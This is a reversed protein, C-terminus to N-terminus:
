PPSAELRGLDEIRRKAQDVLSTIGAEEAAALAEHYRKRAREIARQDAGYKLFNDATELLHWIEEPTVRPNQWAIAKSRTGRLALLERPAAGAVGPDYAGLLYRHTLM